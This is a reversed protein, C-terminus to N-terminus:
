ANILHGPYTTPSPSLRFAFPSPGSGRHRPLTVFRRLSPFGAAPSYLGARLESWRLRSGEWVTRTRIEDASPKDFVQTSRKALAGQRAIREKIEASSTTRVEDSLTSSRARRRAADAERGWGKYEFGPM